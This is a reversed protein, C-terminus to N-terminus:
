RLEKRALEAYGIIDIWHDQFNENGNVIRAIKQFIMSIALYSTASLGEHDIQQCLGAYTEAVNKYEGHTKQREDLIEQIM